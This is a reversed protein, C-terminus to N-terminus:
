TLLTGRRSLLLPGGQAFRGTPAVLGRGLAAAVADVLGSGCIGRPEVNGLVRCAFQGDGCTVEAIAGTAARMGMSIRAGEFAPGAATSACLIRERNGVVIEGNTGLDILVRLSDSEHLNTALIGALIDSGVFGGLCPLFHVMADGSDWGLDRAPFIQMGDTAPEFPSHSLPTIDLGCFLHHMATNGVIVVRTLETPSRQAALLLESIMAGLEDRILQTLTTAGGNVAFDIRSMVDGGYKAQPNLGTRVALVQATRLDLLQAAITTTGLDVAVGFGERPTFEFPAGDSLVPADWQAIQLTLDVHATARCGLRWGDALEQATIRRADDDTVPLAGNIVKVRCGKCRGRGGCPFEVGHAFLGDRLATERDVIIQKGLPQLEISVRGNM